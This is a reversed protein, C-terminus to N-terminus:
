LRMAGSISFLSGSGQFSGLYSLELVFGEFAYGGTLQYIWGSFSQNNTVFGILHVRPSFYFQEVGALLGLDLALPIGTSDSSFIVYPVTTGADLSLGDALRQKVGLRLGTQASLNYEREGDGQAYSFVPIVGFQGQSFLASLGFSLSQGSTVEPTRLVAVPVCGSLVLVTLLPVLKKM